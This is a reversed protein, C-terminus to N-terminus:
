KINFLEPLSDLGKLDTSYDSASKRIIELKKKDILPLYIEKSAELVGKAIQHAIRLIDNRNPEPLNGIDIKADRVYQCAHQFKGLDYTLNTRPITYPSLMKFLIILGYIFKKNILLIYGIVIILKM